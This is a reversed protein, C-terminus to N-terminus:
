SLAPPPPGGLRKRRYHVIFRPCTQIEHYVVYQLGYEAGRQSLPAMDERWEQYWRSRHSVQLIDLDGETGSVAHFGEPARELRENFERGYAHVRGLAVATVIAYRRDAYHWLRTGSEGNGLRIWLDPHLPEQRARGGANTVAWRLRRLQCMGDAGVSLVTYTEPGAGILMIDDGVAPPHGSLGDADDLQSVRCPLIRGGYIAHESFYIGKGYSGGARNSRTFDFPFDSQVLTLPDNGPSHWLLRENGIRNVEGKFRHESQGHHVRWIAVDTASPESALLRASVDAYDADAQDLPSWSPSATVRAEELRRLRREETALAEVERLRAQAYEYDELVARMAASMHARAMWVARRRTPDRTIVMAGHARAAEGLARWDLPWKRPMLVPRADSTSTEVRRRKAAHDREILAAKEEVAATFKAFCGNDNALVTVGRVNVRAVVRLMRLLYPAAHM